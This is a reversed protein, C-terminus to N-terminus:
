CTTTSLARRPVESKLAAITARIGEIAERDDTFTGARSIPEVLIFLLRQDESLFYGAGSDDGDGVPFLGGFPSRYPMPRDLRDTIQEVLERVFRLDMADRSDSLGLDLFAAAFRNAVHASIGDVLTDLTPGSAFAEMLDQSDFIRDRIERLRETPLYLLARGEFQRPDIRYAIRALPVRQTRLEGALRSAYEKAETISSAEVVVVINELDGFERAYEAYRQISPQRPPLLDRQSTKLTLASLAYGVSAAALLCSVVLTWIPRATALGVLRGLLRGVTTVRM